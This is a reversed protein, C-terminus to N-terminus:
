VSEAPRPVDTIGAPSSPLPPRGSAAAHAPPRPNKSDRIRELWGKGPVLVVGRLPAGVSRLRESALGADAATVHGLDCLLVVADVSPSLRGADHTLLVPPTDILVVEGLQRASAVLNEHSPLQSDRVYPRHGNMMISVGEISTASAAEPAEREAAFHAGRAEGAGPSVLAPLSADWSDAALIVVSTGAESFSAALNAIVSEKGELRGSSSFLVAQPGPYSNPFAGLVLSTQLMRFAEAPASAPDDRVVLAGAHRRDISGKPLEGLVPLGYAKEAQEK